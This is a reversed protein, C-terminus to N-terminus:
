APPLAMLRWRGGECRLLSGQEYWDGLVIRQAPKGDLEFRHVAPRHTHGHIMHRVGQERLLRDVSRPSVDLLTDDLGRNRKASVQRAQAAYALRQARPKALFDAQWRPDHVLTRFRQYEIDDTCLTDGHLLLVPVGDLEIRCMDGLLLAGTADSFGEGLLFDRNGRMVYVPVDAATLAKLGSIISDDASLTDDGVWAEFLDGLIYLAQAQRASQRLFQVFLRTVAPRSPDLHLDSIFLVPRHNTDHNHM